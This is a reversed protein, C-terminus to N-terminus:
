FTYIIDARTGLTDTGNNSDFIMQPGSNWFRSNLVIDIKLNKYDMGWGTIISYSDNRGTGSDKSTGTSVGAASGDEKSSSIFDIDRNIGFRLAGYKIDKELGLRIRPGGILTATRNDSINVTQTHKLKGYGLGFGVGYFFSDTTNFAKKNFLLANAGIANGKEENSSPANTSYTAKRNMLYANAYLTNFVAINQPKRVDARLLIVSDKRNSNTGTSTTTEACGDGFGPVFVDPIGFSYTNTTGTDQCVPTFSEGDGFNDLAGVVPNKAYAFSFALETTGQTVGYIANFGLRSIKSDPDGPDRPNNESKDTNFNFGFKVGKDAGLSRYVSLFENSNNQGGYLGWKDGPEGVLVAYEGDNGADNAEHVNAVRFLNWKNISQPFLDINTDDDMLMATEGGLTYVRAETALTAQTVCFLGLGVYILKKM